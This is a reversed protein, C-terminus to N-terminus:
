RLCIARWRHVCYTSPMKTVKFDVNLTVWPWQFRFWQTSWVRSVILRTIQREINPRDHGKFKPWLDSLTILFPATQYVMYSKWIVRFRYFIFSQYINYIGAPPSGDSNQLFVNSAPLVLIIPSGYPSFFSHCYTLGNEHSVTVNRVSPRLSLRVSRSYWYRADTHQRAIIFSRSYVSYECFCWSKNEQM